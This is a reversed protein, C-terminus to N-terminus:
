RIFTSVKALGVRSNRNTNMVLLFDMWKLTGVQRFVIFRRGIKAIIGTM